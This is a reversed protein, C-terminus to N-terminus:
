ILKGLKIDNALIPNEKEKDENINTNIEDQKDNDLFVKPNLVVYFNNRNDRVYKKINNETDLYDKNISSIYNDGSSIKIKSTKKSNHIIIINLHYGKPWKRPCYLLGILLIFLSDLCQFLIDKEIVFCLGKKFLIYNNIFLYSYIFFLLFIFQIFVIFIKLRISSGYKELYKKM